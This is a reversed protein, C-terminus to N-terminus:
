NKYLRFERSFKNFNQLYSRKLDNQDFEEYENILDVIRQDQEETLEKIQTDILPAQIQQHFQTMAPETPLINNEIIKNIESIDLTKHKITHQETAEESLIAMDKLDIPGPCMHDIYKLLDNTIGRFNYNHHKQTLTELLSTTIVSSIEELSPGKMIFIKNLVHKNQLISLAEIKKKINHGLKNFSYLVLLQKTVQGINANSVLIYQSNTDSKKEKEISL